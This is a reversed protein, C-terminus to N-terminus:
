RCERPAARARHPRSRSAPAAASAPPWPRDPAAPRPSRVRRPRASHTAAARPVLPQQARTVQAGRLPAAEQGEDGHHRYRAQREADRHQDHHQRHHIAELAFQAHADQADGRMRLQDPEGPLQIVPLAGLLQRQRHWAHDRGHGIDLRLRHQVVRRHRDGSGDTAHRGLLFRTGGAKGLVDGAALDGIEGAAAIADHEAIGQRRLKAHANAVLEDQHRRFAAGRRSADRRAYTAHLDDAQKMGAHIFVVAPQRQQVDVIRPAEIPQARLDRAYAQRQLIGKRRRRQHMFQRQPQAAAVEGAVPRAHVGPKEIRYPERFRHQEDNQQQQYGYSGEIDHGRQHHHHLVLAGVNGDQARQAGRRAIYQQGEGDLTRQDTEGAGPETRCQAPQDRM